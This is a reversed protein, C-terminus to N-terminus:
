SNKTGRGTSHSYANVGNGSGKKILQAMSSSLVSFSFLLGWYQDRNTEIETYLAVGESNQVCIIFLSMM